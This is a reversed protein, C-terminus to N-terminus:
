SSVDVSPDTNIVGAGNVLVDVGGLAEETREVARAVEDAETVDAGVALARRGLDEIRRATEEVLNERRGLAAVDAGAEALGLAMAAGLGTGAGTVLAAKGDLRFKDLIM